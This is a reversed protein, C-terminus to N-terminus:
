GKVESLKTNMHEKIYTRATFPSKNLINYNLNCDLLLLNLNIM